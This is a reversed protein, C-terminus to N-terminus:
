LTAFSTNEIFTLISDQLVKSVVEVNPEKLLSFHDGPVNIYEIPDNVYNQWETIKKRMNNSIDGENIFKKALLITMEKISKNAFNYTATIQAHYLLLLNNFMSLNENNVYNKIIRENTHLM